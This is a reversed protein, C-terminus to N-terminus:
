FPVQILATYRRSRISGTQFQFLVLCFRYLVSFESRISGTQFQFRDIRDSIALHESGELRVLKSNFSRIYLHRDSARKAELRVLKSNFRIMSHAESSMAVSRISGTQFQFWHACKSLKSIPLSIPVYLLYAGDAPSRKPRACLFSRSLNCSSPRASGRHLSDPLTLVPQRSVSASHSRNVRSSYCECRFRVFNM